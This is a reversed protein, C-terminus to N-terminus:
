ILRHEGVPLNSQAHIKIRRTNHLIATRMYQERAGTVDGTSTFVDRDHVLTHLRDTGPNQQTDRTKGLTHTGTDSRMEVFHSTCTKRTTVGPGGFVKLEKSTHVDSFFSSFSSIAVYPSLPPRDLARYSATTIKQACEQLLAEGELTYLWLAHENVAVM